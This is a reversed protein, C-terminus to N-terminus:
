KVKIIYVHSIEEEEGNEDSEDSEDSENEDKEEEEEGNEDSENEDKEEEKEIMLCPLRFKGKNNKKGYLKEYLEPYLSTDLERGDMIMWDPSPDCDGFYLKVEGIFSNEEFRSYKDNIEDELIQINRKLDDYLSLINDYKEEERESDKRDINSVNTFKINGDVKAELINIRHELDSVLNPKYNSQPPHSTHTSHSPHIPHNPHHLSKIHFSRNM